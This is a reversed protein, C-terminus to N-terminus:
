LEAPLRPRRSRREQTQRREEERRGVPAHLPEAACDPGNGTGWKIVTGPLIQAAASLPTMIGLLAVVAACTV